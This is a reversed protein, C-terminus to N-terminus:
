PNGRDPFYQNLHKLFVHANNVDSNFSSVQPAELRRSTDPHVENLETLSSLKTVFQGEPSLFVLILPRQWHRFAARAIENGSDALRKLQQAPVTVSIFQENIRQIV